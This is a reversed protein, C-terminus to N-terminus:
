DPESAAPGEAVICRNRGQEKAAYLAKDARAFVEEGQDNPYFAALGFSMTIALQQEKFHFPCNAIAERVGESVQLAADGDTEPMLLVFEEGGYRGVFDTKRLRTSLTKAIIRLVKDGAQHGFNDNVRKFHDVDCVVLTLPRQYRLWREQELELRQQYADRNPLQTLVDRLAKQRQEELQQAAETSAEEMTKVQAVLADLQKALSSARQQESSQHQDM